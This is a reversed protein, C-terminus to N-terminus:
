ECEFNDKRCIGNDDCQYNIIYTDRKINKYEDISIHSTNGTEENNIYIGSDRSEIKIDNIGISIKSDFIIKTLKGTKTYSLHTLTANFLKVDNEDSGIVWLNFQKPYSFEINLVKNFFELHPCGVLTLSHQFIEKNIVFFDDVNRVIGDRSIFYFIIYEGPIIIKASTNGHEYDLSLKRNPKKSLFSGFFSDEDITYKCEMEGIGDESLPANLEVDFSRFYVLAKGQWDSIAFVSEPM